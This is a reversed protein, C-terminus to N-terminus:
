LAAFAEQEEALCTELEAIIALCFRENNVSLDNWEVRGGSIVQLGKVIMKGSDQLGKLQSEIQEITATIKKGEAVRSGMYELTKADVTNGERKTTISPRGRRM